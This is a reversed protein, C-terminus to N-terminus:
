DFDRSTGHKFVHNHFPSFAAVPRTMYGAFVVITGLVIVHIVDGHLPGIQAVFAGVCVALLVLAGYFTTRPWLVLMVGVLETAGTFYRFWQGLGIKGFEAVMMPAGSLKFFAAAGFALALLVRLVWIAVTALQGAQPKSFSNETVALRRNFNL